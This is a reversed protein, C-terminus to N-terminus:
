LVRPINAEVRAKLERKETRQAIALLAELSRATSIIAAYVKVWGYIALILLAIGLFGVIFNILLAIGEDM